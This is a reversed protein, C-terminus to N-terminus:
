SRYYDSNINTKVPLYMHNEGPVSLSRWLAFVIPGRNVDCGEPVFLRLRYASREMVERLLVSSECPRTTQQQRRSTSGLQILRLLVM